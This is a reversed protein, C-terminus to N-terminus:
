AHQTETLKIFVEQMSPIVERYLSIQLHQGGFVQIDPRSNEPYKFQVFTENGQKSSRLIQIGQLDEPAVDGRYHMEFIDEKLTSRIDNVTGTTVVESKNILVVEDCIEEVSEMRHTSLIVSAGKQKLSRIEDKILQTNKPDFGTFPEDLIIVKPDHLVTIIFQIKQQMGKSLEEIRKKKWTSAEFKDLWENITKIATAKDLGRLRAFYLLQDFVQMKKYLGREEPLYGIEKIHSINLKNGRFLVQGEDPATIQNIIRILSTKGAGNPGLLGFVIGEPVNFSVRNLATHNAYFKSVGEISLVDM